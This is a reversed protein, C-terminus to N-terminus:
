ACSPGSAKAEGTAPVVASTVAEAGKLTGVQARAALEAALTQEIRELPM